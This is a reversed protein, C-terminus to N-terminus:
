QTLEKPMQALFKPDFGSGMQLVRWQNNNMKQLFVKSNNTIPKVSHVIVAAYSDTCKKSLVQISNIPIARNQSAYNKVSLEIANADKDSCRLKNTTQANCVYGTSLLFLFIGIPSIKKNMPVEM